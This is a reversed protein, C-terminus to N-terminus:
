KRKPAANEDFSSVTRGSVEVHVWIPVLGYLFQYVPVGVPIGHIMFTPDWLNVSVLRM